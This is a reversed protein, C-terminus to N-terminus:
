YCFKMIFLHHLEGDVLKVPRFSDKNDEEIAIGDDDGLLDVLQKQELKHDLKVERKSLTPKRLSEVDRNSSGSGGWSESIIPFNTNEPNKQM